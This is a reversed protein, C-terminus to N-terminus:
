KIVINLKTKWQFRSRHQHVMGKVHAAKRADRPSPVDRTNHTERPICQRMVHALHMVRALHM